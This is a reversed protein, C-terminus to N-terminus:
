NVNKKYADKEVLGFNILDTTFEFMEDTYKKNPEFKYSQRQTLLFLGEYKKRSVEVIEDFTIIETHDCEYFSKFFSDNFLERFSSSFASWEEDIDSNEEYNPSFTLLKEVRNTFQSWWTNMIHYYSHYNIERVIKQSLKLRKLFKSPFTSLAVVLLRMYHIAFDHQDIKLISEEIQSLLVDDIGNKEMEECLLIIRDHLIEIPKDKIPVELDNFRLM